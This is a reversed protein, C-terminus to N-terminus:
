KSQLLHKLKFYKYVPTNMNQMSDDVLDSSQDDFFFGQNRHNVTFVPSRLYMNLSTRYHPSHNNKLALYVSPYLKKTIKQYFSSNFKELSPDLFNFQLYTEWCCKKNKCGNVMAQYDISYPYSFVCVKFNRKIGCFFTASVKVCVFNEIFLFSM